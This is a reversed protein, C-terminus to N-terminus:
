KIELIKRAKEVLQRPDIPKVMYDDAGVALGEELGEREGHGTLLAVYANKLMPNTKIHKCVEYGNMKPIMIDLLIIDPKEREAIKLGEEGDQAVLVILGEREIIDEFAMEMTRVLLKRISADDEVILIKKEM